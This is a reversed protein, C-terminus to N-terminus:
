TQQALPEAITRLRTVAGVVRMSAQEVEEASTHRGLSFRVASSAQTDSCGLSRLVASPEAGDSTCAAGASVALDELALLLSEGDVGSFSVNLIHCARQDAQGNLQIGDLQQLNMWLTDRLSAVKAPETSLHDAGLECAQGMGVVQHTPLTGPRLGRQQGGGFLLPEVRRSRQRNLCLAGVGKPGYLKHASLSLLDIGQARVDLPLRGASQAADVHLLVGHDRCVMGISDIDHIVGTENNVHMISALVTDPQLAAVFADISLLGGSDVPLVTVDYGQRRLEDCTKLVAPHETVCTVIHRGRESQFRAAGLLALNISETAGSTWVIEDPSANVLGAVQESARVCAAAASQGIRHSASANAASGVGTLWPQMAATVMPDVPTGSAYDLYILRDDAPELSISAESM